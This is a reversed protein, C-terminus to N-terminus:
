LHQMAILVEVHKDAVQHALALLGDLEEFLALVFHEVLIRVVASVQGFQAEYEAV